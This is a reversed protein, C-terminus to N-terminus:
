TQNGFMISVQFTDIFLIVHGEGFISVFLELLNENNQNKEVADYLM